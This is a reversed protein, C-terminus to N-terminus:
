FASCWLTTPLFSNKTQMSIPLVERPDDDSLTDGTGHTRRRKILINSKKKMFSYLLPVNYHVGDKTRTSVHGHWQCVSIVAKMGYWTCLASINCALAPFYLTPNKKPWSYLLQWSKLNLFAQYQSCFDCSM